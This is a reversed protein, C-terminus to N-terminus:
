AREKGYADLVERCRQAIQVSHGGDSHICVSSFRVPVATGDEAAITSQELAQNLRQAVQEPTKEEPQPRILLNGENDYDLDVYLEPVFGVGEAECVQEHATGALGFFPVEFTKCVAAAAEMLKADRALMGYLAGHPKIHNLPLDAADLFAKLAGTQYTILRRVDAPDLNMARRGFGALDPLGPHAGVAVAHEKALHVTREMEAPDGAHFGCAVNAVDILQMLAADNGFSHRGIGEGLDANLTLLEREGRRHHDCCSLQATDLVVYKTHRGGVPAM